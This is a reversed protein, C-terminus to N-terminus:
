GVNKKRQFTSRWTSRKNSATTSTSAYTTQRLLPPHPSTLDNQASSVGGDVTQASSCPCSTSCCRHSNGTSRWRFWRGSGEVSRGCPPPPQSSPPQDPGPGSRFSAPDKLLRQSSAFRETETSVRSPQFSEPGLDSRHGGRPIGPAVEPRHVTNPLEASTEHDQESISGISSSPATKLDNSRELPVGPLSTPDVTPDVMSCNGTKKDAAIVNSRCKNVGDATGVTKATSADPGVSRGSPGTTLVAQEEAIRKMHFSQTANCGRPQKPEEGNSRRQDQCWSGTRQLPVPPPSEEVTKQRLLLASSSRTGQSHSAVESSPTSPPLDHPVTGAGTKSPPMPRMSMTFGLSLSAISSLGSSTNMKSFLALLFVLIKRSNNM